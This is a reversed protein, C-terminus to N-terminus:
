FTSRSFIILILSKSYAGEMRREPYDLLWSSKANSSSPYWLTFFDKRVRPV